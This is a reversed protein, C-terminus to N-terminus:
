YLNESFLLGKDGMNAPRPNFNEELGTPRRIQGMKDALAWAEERTLFAGKQDIFGQEWGHIPLGLKEIAKRMVSDYHRAGAVIMEGQRMAACVVLRTDM